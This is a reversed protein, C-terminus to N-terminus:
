TIKKGNITFEGFSFSLKSSDSCYQFDYFASTQEFSARKNSDIKGSADLPAIIAENDQWSQLDPTDGCQGYLSSSGIVTLLVHVSILHGAQLDCRDLLMSKM